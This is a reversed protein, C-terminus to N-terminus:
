APKPPQLIEELTRLCRLAEATEGAILALTLGKVESRLEPALREIHVLRDGYRGKIAASFQEDTLGARVMLQEVKAQVAPHRLIKRGAVRAVSETYGANRAAEANSKGALKLQIFRAQRTTLRSVGVEM